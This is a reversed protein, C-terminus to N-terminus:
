SLLSGTTAMQWPQVPFPFSGAVVVAAVMVVVVDSETIPLNNKLVPVGQLKRNQNERIQLKRKKLVRFIDM